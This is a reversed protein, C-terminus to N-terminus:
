EIAFVEIDTLAVQHSGRVFMPATQRGSGRYHYSQLLCKAAGNAMQVVLDQSFCPGLNPQRQLAHAGPTQCFIQWPAMAYSNRLSFLFAQQSQTSSGYFPNPSTSPNKVKFHAHRFQSRASASTANGWPANAFGGFILGDASKLVVVTQSANDCANHFAQATFGDRSGRYILDAKELQLWAVLQDVHSQETLIESEYFPTALGTTSLQYYEQDNKLCAQERASLTKPAPYGRLYNLLHRFAVDDREIFVSGDEDVDGEWRDRSSFKTAFYSGEQATLNRITTCFQINATMLQLKIKEGSVSQEIKQKLRNFSAMEKQFEVETADVAATAEEIQHEITQIMKMLDSVPPPAVVKPTEAPRRCYNCSVNAASAQMQQRQIANRMHYNNGYTCANMSCESVPNGCRACPSVVQPPAEAPDLLRELDSLEYFSADLRLIELEAPSLETLEPMQNQLHNLIYRFATPDRDVFICGDQDFPVEAAGECLSRFFGAKASLTARTAFFPQGGIDLKVRGKLSPPKLNLSALWMARKSAVLKSKQQLSDLSSLLTGQLDNLSSALAHLARHDEASPANEM